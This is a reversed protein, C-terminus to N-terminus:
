KTKALQHIHKVLADIEDKSLSSKFGPMPGKGNAIVDALQADPQSQVEPSRLDPMKMSKGVVTDGSGNPAHCMACHAGFTSQGPDDGSASAAVAVTASGVLLWVLTVTLVSTVLMHWKKPLTKGYTNAGSSNMGVSSKRKLM